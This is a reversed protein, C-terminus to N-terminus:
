LTLIKGSDVIVKITDGKKLEYVEGDLQVPAAELMTCSFSRALNSDDQLGKTISTIIRKVIATKTTDDDILLRFTGEPALKMKKHIKVVKSMRGVKAAIINNVVQKKGQYRMKVPEFGMIQKAVILKENVPNLHQKNLEKIAYPTLGWGIYSHAYLVKSQPKNKNIIIKLLEFNKPKTTLIAKYLTESRMQFYHDNANGGAEVACIPKGTKKTNVAKMVGNILEHYGGDGSVSIILPRDAGYAIDHGIQEAHKPKKTVILQSDLGLKLLRKHLRQAKLKANGTSHPNYIVAAMDYGFSLNM